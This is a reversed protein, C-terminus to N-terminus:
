ILWVRLCYLTAPRRDARCLGDVRMVAWSRGDTGVGLTTLSSPTWVEVTTPVELIQFSVHQRMLRLSRLLTRDYRAVIVLFAESAFVVLVTMGQCMILSRHDTTETGSRPRVRFLTEIAGVDELAVKGRDVM